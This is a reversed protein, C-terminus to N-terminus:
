GAIPEDTPASAEGVRVRGAGGGEIRGPCLHPSRDTPRETQDTAGLVVQLLGAGHDGVAVESQIM